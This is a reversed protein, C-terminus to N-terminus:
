RKVKALEILVFGFLRSEPYLNKDKLMVEACALHGGSNAVFVRYEV